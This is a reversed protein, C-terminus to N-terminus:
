PPLVNGSRSKVQSVDTANITGNANVDARFNTGGVPQGSQTKVLSIDTASVSGGANVDGVLVSLPITVNSTANVNNLTVQLTQVDAVNTLPITVVNGSTSVAGGNTVGGNGITGIGSTVAAQPTGTVSVNTLFTVVITYDGTTGGSRCEVGATGTLPLPIDFNGAAGHNKRSAAGTATPNGGPLASRLFALPTSFAPNGAYENGQGDQISALFYLVMGDTLYVNDPSWPNTAANARGIVVPVDL